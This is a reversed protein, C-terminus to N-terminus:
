TIVVRCCAALMQAVARDVRHATLASALASRGNSPRQAEAIQRYFVAAARLLGRPAFSSTRHGEAM